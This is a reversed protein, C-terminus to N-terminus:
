GSVAFFGSCEHEIQARAWEPTTPTAMLAGAGVIALEATCTVGAAPSRERSRIEERYM